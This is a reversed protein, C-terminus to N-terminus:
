NKGKPTSIFVVRKGKVLTMPRLIETWISEKMFAAEDCILFDLTSGRLNDPKEASKFHIVSGNTLKICVETRNTSKILGTPKLANVLEDFVKKAQAYIPSVWFSVSNKNELNWKLLLNLALMSKGWQRGINLILIKADSNDILNICDRQTKHPTFLKINM